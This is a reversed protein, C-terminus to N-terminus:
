GLVVVGCDICVFVWFFWGIGCWGCCFVVVLYGLVVCGFDVGVDFM